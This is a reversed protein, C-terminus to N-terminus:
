TARRAAVEAQRAIHQQALLRLPWSNSLGNDDTCYHNVCVARRSAPQWILGWCGCAPCPHKRVVTPDGAAIALELGQRYLMAERAQQREPEQHATHERAWEVVEDAPGRYPAVGPANTRVHTDVERVVANIHDLVGLDFPAPGEVRTATRGDGPGRQEYQLHEAQLVRLRHATTDDGQM